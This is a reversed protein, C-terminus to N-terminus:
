HRLEPHPDFVRVSDVILMEDVEHLYVTRIWHRIWNVIHQKDTFGSWPITCPTTVHRQIGDDRDGVNTHILLMEGHRELRTPFPPNRLEISALVEDLLDVPPRAM